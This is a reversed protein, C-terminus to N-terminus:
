FDGSPISAKRLVEVTSDDGLTLELDADVNCCGVCDNAIEVWICLEKGHRATELLTFPIATTGSESCGPPEQQAWAQGSHGALFCVLLLGGMRSARDRHTWGDPSLVILNEVLRRGGEVPM